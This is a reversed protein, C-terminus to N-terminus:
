ITFLIDDICLMDVMEDSVQEDPIESIEFTGKYWQTVKNVKEKTTCHVTSIEKEDIIKVEFM